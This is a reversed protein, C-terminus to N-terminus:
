SHRPWLCPNSHLCIEIARLAQFIDRLDETLALLIALMEDQGVVCICLTRKIGIEKILLDAHTAATSYAVKQPITNETYSPGILVAVSRSTGSM